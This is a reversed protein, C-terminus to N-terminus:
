PLAILTRAFIDYTKAAASNNSVCLAYRQGMEQVKRRSKVDYPYTQAVSVAAGSSQPFLATSIAWDLDHVNASAQGVVNLGIDAARCVLLGWVMADAVLAWNQVHLLVHTRM